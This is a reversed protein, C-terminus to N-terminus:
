AHSTRRVRAGPRITAIQILGEDQLTAFVVRVDRKVQGAHAQPFALRVADIAAALTTPRELLRWLSAAVANLHFVPAEGPKMLFIDSGVARLTVGPTQAFHIAHPRSPDSAIEISIKSDKGDFHDTLQQRWPANVASFRDILFTAAEDLDSYTLTFCATREILSRLQDLTAVSTGNPAFNQIILQRLARGRSLPALTAKGSRRRDLLVTAGLPAAEGHPALRSAPLALYLFENDCPGRYQDVFHHFHIGIRSPLPLRLRPATGLAVGERGNASVPLVDDAFLRLGQAALGAALMSKGANESNPFLVLHGDAEVAACHFCLREPQEAAFACAMEAVLSFVAGVETREVVPEDLWPSAIRYRNRECRVSIVAPDDKSERASEVTRFRWTGLVAALPALLADCGSLALPVSLEDLAILV